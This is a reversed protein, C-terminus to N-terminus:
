PQVKSSLGLRARARNRALLINKHFLEAASLIILMPSSALRTRVRTRVLLTLALNKTLISLLNNGLGTSYTSSAVLLRSALLLLASDLPYASLRRIQSVESRRLRILESRGDLNRHDKRFRLQPKRYSGSVRCEHSTRTM